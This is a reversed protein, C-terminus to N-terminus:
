GARMKKALAEANAASANIKRAAEVEAEKAELDAITQAKVQEKYAEVEAKARNSNGNAAEDDYADLFLFQKVKDKVPVSPEKAKEEKKEKKKTPDLDFWDSVTDKIKDLKAKAGGTAGGDGDGGGAGDGDGAPEDKKEPIGVLPLGLKILQKRLVEIEGAREKAREARYEDFEKKDVKEQVGKLKTREKEADKAVRALTANEDDKEAQRHKIENMVWPTMKAADKDAKEKRRAREKEKDRDRSSGSTRARNSSSTSSTSAEVAYVKGMIHQSVVVVLAVFLGCILIATLTHPRYPNYLRPFQARILQTRLHARGAQTTPVPLATVQDDARPSKLADRHLALM